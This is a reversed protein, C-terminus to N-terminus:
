TGQPQGHGDAALDGSKAGSADRTESTRSEPCATHASAASTAVSDANSVPTPSDSPIDWAAVNAGGKGGAERSVQTLGVNGVAGRSVGPAM